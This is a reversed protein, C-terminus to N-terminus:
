ITWYVDIKRAASFRSFFVSLTYCFNTPRYNKIAPMWKPLLQIVRIAEADFEPYLSLVVQPCIVEGKESIIFRVVVLGQFNIDAFKPPYQTNDSIFSMLAFEGGPFLPLMDVDEGYILTDRHFCVIDYLSDCDICSFISDNTHVKENTQAYTFSSICLCILWFLNKM